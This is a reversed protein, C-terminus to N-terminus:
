TSAPVLTGSHNPHLNLSDVDERGIGTRNCDGEDDECGFMDFTKVGLEDYGLIGAQDWAHSAETRAIRIAKWANEGTLDKFYDKFRGALESTAAGDEMWKAIVARIEKKQTNMTALAYNKALKDVVLTMAQNQTTNEIGLGFIDNVDDLGVAVSSMFAPKIASQARGLEDDYNFVDDVPMKFSQGDVSKISDLVRSELGVYYNKVSKILVKECRKKTRYARRHIAAQETISWTKVGSKLAKSPEPKAPAAVDGAPLYLATMYYQDLDSNAADKPLGLMERYENRTIVGRDFATKAEEIRLVPPINFRFWVGSRGTIMEALRSLSYEIPSAYQPITFQYYVEKQETASDFRADDGGSRISPVGIMDRVDAKTMRRQEIYQMDTHSIQLDKVEGQIPLVRAAGWNRSGNLEQEIRDKFAKFTVPTLPEKPMIVFPIKAGQQFFIQNFISTLRDADLSPANQQVVGMGRLVNNPGIMKTHIINEPQLILSQTGYLCQYHIVKSASTRFGANVISGFQDYIDVDAPNLIAINFTNDRVQRMNDQRLAWFVNGDLIYHLISCYIFQCFDLSDGPNKAWKDFKQDSFKNGKEDVLDWGMASIDAAVRGIQNALYSSFQYADLYDSTKKYQSPGSSAGRVRSFHEDLEGWSMAKSGVLWGAVKDRIVNLVGM